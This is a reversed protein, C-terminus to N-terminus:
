VLVARFAVKKCLIERKQSKGCLILERPGSLHPVKLVSDTTSYNNVRLSLVLMFNVLASSKAARARTTASVM